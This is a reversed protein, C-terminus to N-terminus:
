DWYQVQTHVTKYNPVSKQLKSLVTWFRSERRAEEASKLGYKELVRWFIGSSALSIAFFIFFTKMSLFINSNDSCFVESKINNGSSKKLLFDNAILIWIPYNFDSQIIFWARWNSFSASVEFFPFETFM